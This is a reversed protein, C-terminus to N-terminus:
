GRIKRDVARAGSRTMSSLVMMLLAGAGAAILVARVPDARTYSAVAASTRKRAFRATSRLADNAKGMAWGAADGVKSGAGSAPRDAAGSQIGMPALAERYERERALVGAPTMAEAMNVTERSQTGLYQLPSRQESM